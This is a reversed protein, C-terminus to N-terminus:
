SQTTSRNQHGQAQNNFYSERTFILIQEVFERPGSCSSLDQREFRYGYEFLVKQDKLQLSFDKDKTHTWVEDRSSLQCSAWRLWSSRFLSEMIFPQLDWDIEDNPVRHSGKKCTFDM